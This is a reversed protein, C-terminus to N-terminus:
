ENHMPWQENIISGQQNNMTWQEKIFPGQKNNMNITLQENIM